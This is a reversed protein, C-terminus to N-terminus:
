SVETVTFILDMFCCTNQATAAHYRASALSKGQLTAVFTKVVHNQQRSCRTARQSVFFQHFQLTEEFAAYIQKRTLNESKLFRRLALLKKLKSRYARLAVVM